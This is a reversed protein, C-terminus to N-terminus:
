PAVEELGLAAFANRLEKVGSAGGRLGRVGAVVAKATAAHADAHDRPGLLGFLRMAWDPAWFNADSVWQHFTGPVAASALCRDGCGRAFGQFSGAYWESRHWMESLLLVAPLPLAAGLREMEGGAMDATLAGPWFDLLLTGCCREAWWAPEERLCHLIASGGFSHGVLVVRSPDAYRLVGRWAAGEDDGESAVDEAADAGAAAAALLDAVSAKLERQRSELFPRNFAVIDYPYTAQERYPIAEGTHRDIASVSTGDEHELAVAVCGAAAFERCLQTYFELCGYLGPTFVVLPWFEAGAGPPPLPRLLPDV